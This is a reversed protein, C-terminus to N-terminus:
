PGFCYWVNARAEHCSAIGSTGGVCAINLPCSPTHLGLPYFRQGTSHLRQPSDSGNVSRPKRRRGHIHPARESPLPLTFSCVGLEQHLNQRRQRARHTDSHVQRILSSQIRDFVEAQAEQWQLEQWQHRAGARVVAMGLCAARKRHEKDRGIGM